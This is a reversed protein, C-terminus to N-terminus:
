SSIIQFSKLYTLSFEVILVEAVYHERHAFPTRCNSVVWIVKRTKNQAYNTPLTYPIPRPKYTGYPWFVTADQQYHLTWNIGKYYVFEHYRM